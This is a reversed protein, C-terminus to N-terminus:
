RSGASAANATEAGPDAAATVPSVVLLLAVTSAICTALKRSAHIVM